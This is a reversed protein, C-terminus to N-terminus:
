QGIVGSTWTQDWALQHPIQSTCCVPMSKERFIKTKEKDNDNCWLETGM